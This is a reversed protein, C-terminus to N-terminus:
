RHRPSVGGESTGEGHSKRHIGSRGYGISADSEEVALVYEERPRSPEREMQPTSEGNVRHSGYRIYDDLDEKLVRWGRGVKAAQIVGGHFLHRATKISVRLYRAAEDATMPRGDTYRNSGSEERDGRGDTEESWGATPGSPVIVKNWEAIVESAIAENVPATDNGLAHMLSNSALVNLLRPIGNAAEAIKEVAEKTFIDRWLVGVVRLRHEIYEVSREQTMAPIDFRVAVRQRLQRLDNRELKAALEPQGVLVIQILKSKRAELNSLMRIKELLSVSLNQAEDLILVSKKGDRYQKLLYRNLEILLFAESDGTVGTDFDDHILKLLEVFNMATSFIFATELDNPSRDLFSHVLTTKGTGVEGTLLVFGKGSGVGYELHAMAERYIEDLFLFQPDPTLQFPDESFGFYKCYM